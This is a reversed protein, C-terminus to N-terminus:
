YEEPFLITTSSRDDETEGPGEVFGKLGLCSAKQEPLAVLYKTARNALREARM